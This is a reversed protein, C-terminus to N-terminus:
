CRGRVTAFSILVVRKAGAKYLADACECLTSGTTSIDDILLIRKGAAANAAKFAGNLNKRRARGTLSHQPATNFRKILLTKQPIGLIRSAVYSIYECQNYGRELEAVRTMPVYTVADFSGRLRSAKQAVTEGMFRAATMKGMYKARTAIQSAANLPSYRYVSHLTYSRSKYKIKVSKFLRLRELEEMCDACILEGVETCDGCCCCFPPYFFAAIYEKIIKATTKLNIKM